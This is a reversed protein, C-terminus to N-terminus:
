IKGKGGNEHFHKSLFNKIKGCDADNYNMDGVGGVCDVASVCDVVYHVCNVVGCEMVRYSCLGRCSRACLGRCACGTGGCWM